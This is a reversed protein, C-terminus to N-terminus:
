CTTSRHGNTKPKEAPPPWGTINAHRRPRDDAIVSLEAILVAGVSIDGRALITRGSPAAVHKDALEWVQDDRLGDIRFVSTQDNPAPLFGRPKVIGKATSFHNKRDFLYRGLVESRDM